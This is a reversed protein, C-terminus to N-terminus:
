PLDQIRIQGPLLGERRYPPEYVTVVFRFVLADQIIRQGRDKWNQRRVKLIFLGAAVYVPVRAHAPQSIEQIVVGRQRFPCDESKFELLDQIEYL